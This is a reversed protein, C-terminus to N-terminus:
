KVSAGFNVPFFGTVCLLNSWMIINMKIEFTTIKMNQFITTEIM